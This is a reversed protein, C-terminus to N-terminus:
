ETGPIGLPFFCMIIESVLQNSEKVAELVDLRQTSGGPTSHLGSRTLTGLHTWSRGASPSNAGSLNLDCFLWLHYSSCYLPDTVPTLLTRLDGSPGFRTPTSLGCRGVLVASNLNPWNIVQVILYISFFPAATTNQAVINGLARAQTALFSFGKHVAMEWSHELQWAIHRKGLDRISISM